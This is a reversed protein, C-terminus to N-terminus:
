RGVVNPYTRSKWGGGHGLYYRLASAVTASLYFLGIMPLAVGWLPSRQYRRLTPQFAIAMMLWSLGCCVRPLGHAFLILLPPACYIIGMALICGLLLLLSYGLQEFATRAIMNWVDRWNSYVRNSVALDAQGLWIGGGATKIEKALACDDILQGRIRSVGEVNDLAKRSVLMTGGAAGALKKAPDAVWAFPYLMQFYFVFAPILAREAFTACHLRVMESVLQLGDCEAKAVLASIHGPAHVIDADTLLVYDASKAKDHSLGQNVAWLKGTWGEPLPKGPIIALQSHANLSAAIASTGDTSNDDVLIVSLEGPYDQALLSTLTLRICDAEDRAPVVVAVKPKGKPLAANLVPASLWFGGRFGTLYVWAALSLLSIVTIMEIM